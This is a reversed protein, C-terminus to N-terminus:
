QKYNSFNVQFTIIFIFFLENVGILTLIVITCSYSVVLLEFKGRVLDAMVQALNRVVEDNRTQALLKSAVAIIYDGAAASRRGDWRSYMLLYKVHSSSPTSISDRLFFLKM